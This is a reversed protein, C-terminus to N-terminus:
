AGNRLREGPAAPEAGDAARRDALAELLRGAVALIETAREVPALRGAALAAEVEAVAAQLGERIEAAVSAPPRGGPAPASEALAEDRAVLTGAVATWSGLTETWRVSRDADAFCDMAQQM